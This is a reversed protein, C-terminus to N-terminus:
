LAVLQAAPPVRRPQITGQVIRYSISSSTVRQGRGAKVWRDGGFARQVHQASRRTDDMKVDKPRKVALSQYPGDAALLVDRLGAWVRSCASSHIVLSGDSTRICAPDVRRQRVSPTAYSFLPCHAFWAAEHRRYRTTKSM